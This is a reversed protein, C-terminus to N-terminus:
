RLVHRDAHLVVAHRRLVQEFFREVLHLLQGVLLGFVRREGQREFLKGRGNGGGLLLADLGFHEVGDGFFHQRGVQAKRAEELHAVNGGAALLGPM